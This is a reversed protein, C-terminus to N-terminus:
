YGRGLDARSAYLLHYLRQMAPSIGVQPLDRLVADIEEATLEVHIREEGSIRNMYVREM